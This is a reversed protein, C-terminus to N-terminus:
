ATMKFYSTLLLNKYVTISVYGCVITLHFFAALLIIHIVFYYQIYVTVPFYNLYYFSLFTLM